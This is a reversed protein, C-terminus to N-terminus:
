KIPFILSIDVDSMLYDSFLSLDGFQDARSRETTEENKEVLPLLLGKASNM